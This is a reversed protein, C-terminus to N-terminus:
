FSGARITCHPTKAKFGSLGIDLADKPATPDM